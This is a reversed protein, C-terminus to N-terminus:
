GNKGRRGSKWSRDKAAALIYKLTASLHKRTTTQRWWPERPRGEEEYGTEKDCVGLIPRLVVWEAVIVQRRDIYTRLHQNRAKVLVTEEPVKWWTGEKRIVARYSTIKRQFGM